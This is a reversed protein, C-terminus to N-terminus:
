IALGERKRDFMQPVSPPSWVAVARNDSATYTHGSRLGALLTFEYWETLSRRSHAEEPYIWSAVPDNVFADVLTGRMEELDSRVALRVFQHARAMRGDDRLLTAGM